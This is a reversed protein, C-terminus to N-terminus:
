SATASPPNNLKEATERGIPIYENVTQWVTATFTSGKGYESEVTLTGDMTEVIKKVMHLGSEAEKATGGSRKDSFLNKKDDNSIGKGTDKVIFKLMINEDAIIYRVSLIVEGKETYKIANSLLSNLIQKIRQEDGLLKSPLNEKVDIKFKVPKSGIQAANFQITDSIIASIYYEVPNLKLKVAEAKLEEDNENEYDAIIAELESKRDNNIRKLTEQIKFSLVSIEDNVRPQTLQVNSEGSTVDELAKELELLPVTISKAAAFGLFVSFAIAALAAALFIYVNGAGTFSILGIVLATLVVTFFSLLLRTMIRFKRMVTLLCLMM